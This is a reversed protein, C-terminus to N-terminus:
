RHFQIKINKECKEPNKKTQKTVKKISIFQQVKKMTFKLGLYVVSRRCTTKNMRFATEVCPVLFITCYRSSTFETIWSNFFWHLMWAKYVWVCSFRVYYLLLMIPSRWLFVTVWPCGWHLLFGDVNERRSDPNLRILLSKSFWILDIAECCLILDKFYESCTKDQLDLWKVFSQLCTCGVKISDIKCKLTRGHNHATKVLKTTVIPSSPLHKQFHGHKKPNKESM